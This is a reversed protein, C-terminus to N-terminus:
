CIHYGRVTAPIGYAICNDPIDDKVLSMAGIITNSGIELHTMGKRPIIVTGAGICTNPRISIRCSSKEITNETYISCHSGIQVNEGIHVGHKAQIYTGFGIDTNEGLSLNEPHRVVWGYITPTGDYILPKKWKKKMTPFLKKYLKYYPSQPKLWGRWLGILYVTLFASIYLLIWDIM